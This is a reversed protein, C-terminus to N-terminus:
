HRSGNGVADKGRADGVKRDEAGSAFQVHGIIGVNATQPAHM